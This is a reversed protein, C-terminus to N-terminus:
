ERAAKEGLSKCAALAEDDPANNAIIGDTIMNGGAIVVREQWTRMWEGDGWDYSGFLGVKKEALKGEIASFFPEFESEELQEAGMAPCGLILADSALVDESAASVPLLEVEAGTGKAGEAVANAMAETNGTGSWYVISVKM